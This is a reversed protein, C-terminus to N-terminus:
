TPGCGIGHNRCCSSLLNRGTYLKIAQDFQGKQFSQNGKTKLEVARVADSNVGSGLLSNLASLWPRPELLICSQVAGVFIAQDNDIVASVSASVLTDRHKDLETIIAQM